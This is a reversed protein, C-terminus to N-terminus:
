MAKYFNNGVDAMLEDTAVTLVVALNPNLYKLLLSDSGLISAHSQIVEGQQPYVVNVIEEM